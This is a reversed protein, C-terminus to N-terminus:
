FVEKVNDGSYEVGQINFLREYKENFLIATIVM